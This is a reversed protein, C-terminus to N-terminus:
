AKTFKGRHKEMAEGEECLHLLVARCGDPPMGAEEAIEETTKESKSLALLVKKEWEEYYARRVFYYKMDFARTGRVEGSKIKESFANGFGRADTENELVMWGFSELHAVSSVSIPSSPASPAPSQSSPERVANFTADPVNYVGEPYKQSHLIDVIRKKVLLDLEDKEGRSFTKAVESLSRKEFRISLLKRVLEKEKESFQSGAAAGGAGAGQSQAPKGAIAGKITLLYIGDKLPFIELSSSAAIDAPLAGALLLGDRTKSAKIEAL